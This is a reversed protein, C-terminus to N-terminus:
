LLLLAITVSYNVPVNAKKVEVIVNKELYGAMAPPM